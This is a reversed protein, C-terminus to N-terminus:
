GMGLMRGFEANSLEKPQKPRGHRRKYRDINYGGIIWLSKMCFRLIGWIAEILAIIALLYLGGLVISSTLNDM